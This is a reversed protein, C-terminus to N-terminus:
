EENEFVGNTNNFVNNSHKLGSYNKLVGKVSGVRIKAEVMVPVKNEDQTLWVSMGDGDEFMAGNPLVPTIRYCKVKLGSKTKIEEKGRYRIEVNSIEADVLMKIPIRDGKNLAEYDINRAYYLVNMLNTVCGNFPISSNKQKGKKNIFANITNNSYNYTYVHRAKYSGENTIRDLSYPILTEKDVVSTLTDRLSFFMDFAKANRGIGKLEYAPKGLFETKKVNMTIKGANVWLLGWNYYGTFELKEGATFANNEICQANLHSVSFASLAILLIVTKKM